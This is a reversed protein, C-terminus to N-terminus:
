RPTKFLTLQLSPMFRIAGFVFPSSTLLHYHDSLFWQPHTHCTHCVAKFMIGLPLRLFASCPNKSQWILPLSCVGSTEKHHLRSLSMAVTSPTSCMQQVRRYLPAHPALVVVDAFSTSAANLNRSSNEVLINFHFLRLEELTLIAAHLTPLIVGSAMCGLDLKWRNKPSGPVCCPLILFSSGEQQIQDTSFLSQM